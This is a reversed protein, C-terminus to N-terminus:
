RVPRRTVWQRMHRLEDLLWLKTEIFFSPRLGIRRLLENHWSAMARGAWVLEGYKNVGAVCPQVNESETVIKMPASPMHVRMVRGAGKFDHSRLSQEWQAVLLRPFCANALAVKEALTKGALADKAKEAWAEIDKITFDM